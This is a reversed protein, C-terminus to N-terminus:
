EGSVRERTVALAWNVVRDVGSPCFAVQATTGFTTACAENVCDIFERLANQNSWTKMSIQLIFDLLEASSDLRELEVSYFYNGTWVNIVGEDMDLHTKM